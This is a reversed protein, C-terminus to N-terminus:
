FLNQLLLALVKKDDAPLLEPFETLLWNRNKFFKTENREYFEDWHNSANSLLLDADVSSM